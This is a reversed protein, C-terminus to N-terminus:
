LNCECKMIEALRFCFEFIAVIIKEGRKISRTKYNHMNLLGNIFEPMQNRFIDFVHKM